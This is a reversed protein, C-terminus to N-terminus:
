KTNAKAIAKKGINIHSNVQKLTLTLNDPLCSLLVALAENNDKLAVLLDPAAAILKANAQQEKKPIGGIIRAIYTTPAENTLILMAEEKEEIEWEGQTHM